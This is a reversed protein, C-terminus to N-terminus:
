LAAALVEAGPHLTGVEGGPVRLEPGKDIVPDALKLRHGPFSLQVGTRFGAPGLESRSMEM